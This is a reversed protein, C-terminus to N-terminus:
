AAVTLFTTGERFAETIPAGGFNAPVPVGLAWLVTAPVDLLSYAGCMPGTVVRPGHLLIPITCDLPHASDHHRATRGGGGHDALAILLTDPSTSLTERLLALEADMRAVAALYAPSMWGTRHGITDCDPWHVLIFGDRASALAREAARRLEYATDGAFHAETLGLTEVIRRALPRVLWPLQRVIGVSPLGHAGLIQPLTRTRATKPRLRFQDTDMGHHAPSVGTLLSTMAAATVSPLVTTATLTAASDALLQNLAPFRPDRVLEARLGDLVLLVVRKAIPTSPRLM